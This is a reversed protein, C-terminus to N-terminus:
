GLVIEDISVLSRPNKLLLCIQYSGPWFLRFDQLQRRHLFKKATNITQKQQQLEASAIQELSYWCCAETIAIICIIYTCGARLLKNITSKFTHYINIKNKLSCTQKTLYNSEKKLRRVTAAEAKCLNMVFSKILYGFRTFPLQTILLLDEVSHTLDHFNKFVAKAFWLM